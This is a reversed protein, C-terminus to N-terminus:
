SLVTFYFLLHKKMKKILVGTLRTENELAATAEYSEVADRLEFIVQFAEVV